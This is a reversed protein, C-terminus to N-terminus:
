LAQCDFAYPLGPDRYNLSTAGPRRRLLSASAYACSPRHNDVLPREHRNM